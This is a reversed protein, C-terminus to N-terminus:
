KKNKYLLLFLSIFGAIILLVDEWVGFKLAATFGIISWLFPIIIAVKPLRISMLLVGFTFITTPCPLGFTPSEPYIHGMFYSIVPYIITGITIFLLGIYSYIDKKFVFEVKNNLIGILLFILGQLIFATGFIKAAPNITSFFWYSIGFGDM